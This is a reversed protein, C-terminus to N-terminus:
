PLLIVGKMLGQDVVVLISDYGASVPLDTIFDMSCNAFPRTTKAGEVPMYAPHCPNRNTLPCEKFSDKGFLWVGDCIGDCVGDM